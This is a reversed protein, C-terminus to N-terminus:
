EKREKGLMLVKYDDGCTVLAIFLYLCISMSGGLMILFFWIISKIVSRERLVVWIYFVLFAAYIDLMTFKGWFVSLMLSGEASFDRAVIGFIILGLMVLFGALSLIKAALFLNKKM